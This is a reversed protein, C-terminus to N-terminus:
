YFGGNSVLMSMTDEVLLEPQIQYAIMLRQEHRDAIEETWGPSRPYRLAIVRRALKEFEEYPLQVPKMSSSKPFSM